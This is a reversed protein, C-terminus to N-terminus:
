GFYCITDIFEDYNNTTYNKKTIGLIYILLLTYKIYFKDGVYISLEIKLKSNDIMNNQEFPNSNSNRKELIYKKNTIYFNYIGINKYNPMKSNSYEFSVSFIDFIMNLMNYLVFSCSYIIIGIKDYYFIATLGAGYGVIDWLYPPIRPYIFKQLEINNSIIPM